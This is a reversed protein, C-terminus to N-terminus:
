LILYWQLEKVVNYWMVQGLCHGSHLVTFGDVEYMDSGFWKTESICVAGMGFCKLENVLFRIKREAAVPLKGTRVTATKVGGDLSCVNLVGCVFLVELPSLWKPAFRSTM